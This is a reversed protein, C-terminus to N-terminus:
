YQYRAPVPGKLFVQPDEAPANLLKKCKPWIM